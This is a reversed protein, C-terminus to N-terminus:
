QFRKPRFISNIVPKAKDIQLTEDDLPHTNVYGIHHVYPSLKEYDFSTVPESGLYVFSEILGYFFLNNFGASKLSHYIIEQPKLVPKRGTFPDADIVPADLICFGDEAVRRRLTRYFEVSFLKSLEYSNPYPFDVFIAEFKNTSKRLYRFADDIVVSVRPNSLSYQNMTTIVPHKTAIDIMTPDLEILTINKINKYKLLETVLLGDGGGLILVKEPVKKYLNIAGHVMSEHYITSSKETFQTQQNLYLGFNTKFGLEHTIGPPVVDIAQYKSQYREINPLNNIARTYNQIAGFSKQVSHLDVYFTKLYFQIISNSNNSILLIAITPIVAALTPRLRLLDRSSLTLFFAAVLNLISLFIGAFVLDYKPILISATIVIGLLNGFYCLGLILGFKKNTDESRTAVLLPIEMGSLYGIIASFPQLLIIQIYPKQTSMSIQPAIDWFFASFYAVGIYLSPIAIAGFLAVLIEIYFLRQIPKTPLKRSVKNAGIGMFLLFLGLTITQAAIEKSSFQTLIRAMLTSYGISSFSFLLASLYVFYM